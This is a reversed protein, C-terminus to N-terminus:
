GSLLTIWRKLLQARITSLVNFFLFDLTLVNQVDAAFRCVYMCVYM